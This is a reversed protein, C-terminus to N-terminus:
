QFVLYQSSNSIMESQHWRFASKICRWLTLWQEWYSEDYPKNYPQVRGNICDHLRYPLSLWDSAQTTGSSEQHIQPGFITKGKDRGRLLVVKTRRGVPWSGIKLILWTGTWVESSHIPKNKSCPNSGQRRVMHIETELLKFLSILHLIPM